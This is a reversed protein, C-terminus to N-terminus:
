SRDPAPTALGELIRKVFGPGAYVLGTYVQVLQAGANLRSLADEPSMIGGAGIIPLVGETRKYIKAVMQDGRAKLPAGSLGGSENASPSLLGNRSITTNTAIVGNIGLRMIVDLADDLEADNLDPALKVLLPIRKGIVQEQDKREVVLVNLLSELWERSQLRRLGITNPSSVNIALYDVLPAFMMLLMTYDQHAQELLTDKNIGLNAGIVLGPPREAKLQQAAFAAGRGPFGMRNILAQDEPLRFLRPKPNGDQPRPTITGVEIHGFGLASLGRWALADKDYGAALGVSNTFRLGFAEVPAAPAQFAAKLLAGLPPLAGVLRLVNLTYTHVGEPDLRFLLRRVQPYM